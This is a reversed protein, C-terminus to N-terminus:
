NKKRGTAKKLRDYHCCGHLNEYVKDDAQFLENDHGVDAIKRLIKEKGTRNADFTVTLSTSEDDWEAKAAKASKAAKEIREKCMGCNGAVRYTETKLNASATNQSTKCAPLGFALLAFLMINKM